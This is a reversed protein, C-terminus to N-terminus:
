HAPATVAPRHAEFSVTPPDGFVVSAAAVAPKQGARQVSNDELTVSGKGIAADATWRTFRALVRPAEPDPISGQTWEFHLTGTASSALDKDAYGALSIKGNGDLSGRGSPVRLLQCVAPAALHKFTGELTYAPKDGNTMTGSLHVQGGFLAADFGTIDAKLAQVHAIASASHLTVPGLTLSDAIVAVDIRPWLPQQSPRLQALLTSLLTDPKHAGLLAAELKAADLDAFHLDLQPLCTQDPECAMPIALSATGKVPGYTFDVPDWRLETPAVRLTANSIEIRNALMDSKWVADHLGITGTLQDSAPIGAGPSVSQAASQAAGSGFFMANLAPLWPGQASLDLNASEGTFAGLVPSDGFGALRALDRVRAFSAPGRLTIQYGALGFQLNVALPANGGAVVPISAALEPPQEEAAAAGVLTFKPIQVPQSLPDGALRFGEVTLSGILPSAEPVRNKESRQSARHAPKASAHVTDLASSDYSLIGSVTGQATLTESLGKRMTRLIDLAAQLPIRQLEVHLRPPANGPLDGDVRFHGNGLPSDCALNDVDRGASRYIFSCNADFDLPELPAFEARHVGTARLRATVQTAEVTGNLHVDGTLNGRWGPDSGTLLRSLQGLQAERWEMDIHVPMQALSPAHRISAELEVIGTDALDLSVDTRAPQGRLRIRWDGPNEQWLSLDANVLSFPLKELGNKVNVRSNTAELYPFPVAGGRPQVPSRATATRFLDELNWRGDPNRVLNLSAEDVSVTSIVLRGRWLSLLRISATVSTAHLVPEAGFAPDSQITLDNLLFGPRPLIRLNVSSLHVPRGLSDSLVRTIDSKYRRISILPPVIVLLAVFTLVILLLWLRKRSRRLRRDGMMSNRV